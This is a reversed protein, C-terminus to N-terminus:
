YPRTPESIHILSLSVDVRNFVFVTERRALVMVGFLACMGGLLLRDITIPIPGSVSFFEPGFVAGSLIVLYGLIPFLHYQGDISQRYKLAVLAWVIAIILGFFLILGM